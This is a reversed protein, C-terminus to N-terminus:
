EVMHCISDDELNRPAFREEDKEDLDDVYCRITLPQVWSVRLLSFSLHWLGSVCRCHIFLHDVLEEEQLCMPCRSFIGKKLIRRKGRAIGPYSEGM